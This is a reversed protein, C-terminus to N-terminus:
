CSCILRIFEPERGSIIFILLNRLIPIERSQLGNIIELDESQRLGETEFPPLSLILRM